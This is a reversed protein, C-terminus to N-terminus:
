WDAYTSPVGLQFEPPFYLPLQRLHQGSSEKIEKRENLWGRTIKSTEPQERQISLIM